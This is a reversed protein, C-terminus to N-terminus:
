SKGGVKEWPHITINFDGMIMYRHVSVRGSIFELEQMREESKQPSYFNSICDGNEM